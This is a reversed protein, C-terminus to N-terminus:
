AGGEEPPPGGVIKGAYADNWVKTMSSVKDGTLTISYVYHSFGGFTAFFIATSKEADFGAAHTEYTAKEGFNECVGKMWDTYQEITECATVLPGPLSDMAQCSFTSDPTCFEKCGEWGAGTECKDYLSRAIEMAHAHAHFPGM